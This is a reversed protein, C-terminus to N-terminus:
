KATYEHLTSLLGDTDFTAAQALIQYGRQKVTATTPPGITIIPVQWLIGSDRVRDLFYGAAFSSTFVVFDPKRDVTRQLFEGPHAIGESHYLHLEEVAFGHHRLTDPLIERGGAGRALLFRSNSPKYHQCLERAFAAAESTDAVYEVRLNRAECTQRTGQGIALVPPASAADMNAMALMRALHEVGERSTLLIHSYNGLCQLAAPLQHEASLPATRSAPAVLVRFGEELLRRTFTFSQSVPRTNIVIPGDTKGLVPNECDVLIDGSESYDLHHQQPALTIYQLYAEYSGFGINQQNHDVLRVHRCSAPITIHEM